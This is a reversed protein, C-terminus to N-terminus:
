GAINPASQQNAASLKQIKQQQKIFAKKQILPSAVLFILVACTIAYSTWVFFGHGNMTIFTAINDFQFKM